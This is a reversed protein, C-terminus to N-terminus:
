STELAPGALGMGRLEHRWPLAMSRGLRGLAVGIVAGAIVDSAHHQRLHVRSLSVAAAVLYYTPGLPDDDALLTAACWAALAHGSPFSASRPM